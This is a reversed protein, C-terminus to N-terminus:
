RRADHLKIWIRSDTIGIWRCILAVRELLFGSHLQDAAPAFIEAWANVVATWVGCIVASIEPAAAEAVMAQVAVTETIVTDATVAMDVAMDAVSLHDESVSHRHMVAKCDKIISNINWITLSSIQLRDQMILLSRLIESDWILLPVSIIGDRM